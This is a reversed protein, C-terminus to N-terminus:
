VEVHVLGLAVGGLPHEAGLEGLEAVVEGACAPAGPAHLVPLAALGDRVRRRRGAALVVDPGVQDGAEILGFRLAARGPRVRLVDRSLLLARRLAAGRGAAVQEGGVVLGAALVGLLPLAAGGPGTGPLVAGRLLAVVVHRGRRGRQGA